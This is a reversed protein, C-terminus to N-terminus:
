PFKWSYMFTVITYHVGTYENRVEMIILMHEIKNVLVGKIWQRGELIIKSAFGTIDTTIYRKFYLVRKKRKANDHRSFLEKIDDVICHTFIGSKEYNKEKKCSTWIM